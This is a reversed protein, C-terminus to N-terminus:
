ASVAKCVRFGEVAYSIGNTALALCICARQAVSVCFYAVGPKGDGRIVVVRWRNDSLAKTM